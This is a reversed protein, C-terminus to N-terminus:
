RPARVNSFPDVQAWQKDLTVPVNLLEVGGVPDYMVARLTIPATAKAQLAWSYRTGRALPASAQFQARWWHRAGSQLRSVEVSLVDEPKTATAPKSPKAAPLGQADPQVAIKQAHTGCALLGLLWLAWLHTCKM